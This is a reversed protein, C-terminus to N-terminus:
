LQDGLKRRTNLIWIFASFVHCVWEPSAEMYHVLKDVRVRIPRGETDGPLHRTQDTSPPSNQTLEHSWKWPDPPRMSAVRNEMSWSKTEWNSSDFMLVPFTGKQSGVRNPRTNAVTLDRCSSSIYSRERGRFLLFKLQRSRVPAPIWSTCSMATFKRRIWSFWPLGGMKPRQVVTILWILQYVSDSHVETM